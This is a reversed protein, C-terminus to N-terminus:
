LGPEEPTGPWGIWLGGRDRLVPGLATVLGGTSPSVRWKGNSCQLSIPLRNSILVLKAATNKKRKKMQMGM